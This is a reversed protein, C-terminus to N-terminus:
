YPGRTAIADIATSLANIRSQYARTLCVTDDDCANREKLWKRQADNVDSRQGMAILSTVVGFLTAMRAEAQGLAYSHCIARESPLSAKGCDVPAYDAAAAPRSVDIVVLALLGCTLKQFTNWRPM